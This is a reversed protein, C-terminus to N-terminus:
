EVRRWYRRTAALELEFAELCCRRIPEMYAHHEEPNDVHIHVAAWFPQMLMFVPDRGTGGFERPRRHAPLNRPSGIALSMGGRGRQVFGATDVDIDATVEPTSDLRLGLARASRALKPLRDQDEIMARYVCLRWQM